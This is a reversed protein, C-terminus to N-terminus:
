LNMSTVTFMYYSASMNGWGICTHKHSCPGKATFLKGKYLM